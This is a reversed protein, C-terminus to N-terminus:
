DELQITGDLLSCKYWDDLWAFTYFLYSSFLKERSKKQFIVRSVAFMLLEFPFVRNLKSKNDEISPFFACRMFSIVFHYPTRFCGFPLCFTFRTMQRLTNQHWIWTNSQIFKIPYFSCVREYGLPFPFCLVSFTSFSHVVM